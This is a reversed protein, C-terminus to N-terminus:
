PKKNLLIADELAKIEAEEKARQSRVKERRAAEEALIRSAEPVLEPPMVTDPQLTKITPFLTVMLTMGTKTRDSKSDNIPGSNFMEVLLRWAELEHGPAKALEYVYARYLFRHPFRGRSLQFDTYLQFAKLYWQAAEYHDAQQNKRFDATLRAIAYPLRFDLPLHEMGNKLVKIAHDILNQRLQPKLGPRSLDEWTYYEFANHSSMWARWDWYRWNRPQLTTCLAYSAEVKAYNQQQWPKIAQIEVVSAVLSRFGGLVAIFTSQGLEQRLSLNLRAESLRERELDKSFAQELPLRILGGTLLLFAALLWKAPRIATM